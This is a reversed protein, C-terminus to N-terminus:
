REGLLEVARRGAALGSLAAGEVRPGGFADGCFVIPQPDRASLCRASLGRTPEAYRWRHVQVEEVALAAHPAAADLLLAAIEEEPAALWERSVSTAAHLTLAPLDSVGKIQNDAIWRLTGTELALAGPPALGSPRSLRALVTICPAYAVLDLEARLTAPLAAAGADLLALAQPVPASAVVARAV